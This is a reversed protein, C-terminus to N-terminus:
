VARRGQDPSLYIWFRLTHLGFLTGVAGRRLLERASPARRDPANARAVQTVNEGLAVAAAASTAELYLLTAPGTRLRRPVGSGIMLLDRALLAACVGEAIVAGRRGFRQITWQTLPFGLGSLILVGHGVLRATQARDHPGHRPNV